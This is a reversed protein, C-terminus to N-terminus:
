EVKYDGIEKLSIDKSGWETGLYLKTESCALIWGSYEKGDTTFITVKTLEGLGEFTEQNIECM